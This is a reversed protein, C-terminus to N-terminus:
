KESKREEQEIGSLEPKFESDIHWENGPRDKVISIATEIATKAARYEKKQKLVKALAWYADALRFSKKDGRASLRKIGLFAAREAEDLNKNQAALVKANLVDLRGAIWDGDPQGVCYPKAMELYFKAKDFANGNYEAQALHHLALAAHGTNVYEGKPAKDMRKRVRQLVPEIRKFMLEGDYPMWYESCIEMCAAGIALKDIDASHKKEATTLAVNFREMIEKIPFQDTRANLGRVLQVTYPASEISDTKEDKPAKTDFRALENQWHKVRSHDGTKGYLDILKDISSVVINSNVKKQAQELQVYSEMLALADQPKNTQQLAEFLLNTTDKLAKERGDRIITREALLLRRAEKLPALADLPQPPELKMYLEGLEENLKAKVWKPSDLLNALALGHRYKKQADNPQENSEQCGGAYYYLLPASWSAAAMSQRDKKASLEINDLIESVPKGFLELLKRQGNETHYYLQDFLVVAVACRDIPSLQKSEPGNLLSLLVESSYDDMHRRQSYVGLMARAAPASNLSTALGQLSGGPLLMPFSLISVLVALSVMIPVIANPLKTSGFKVPKDFCMLEFARELDGRLEEMSQYRNEPEKILCKMVINRLEVPIDEGDLRAPPPPYSELQKNMITMINAGKFAQKGSLAEYMVCGLAYIDSRQDVQHGHCQEPSMYAPSGFVEGTRTLMQFEGGLDEIKAVGFDVIKTIEGGRPDPNVLINSPKLDRHVVGNIHAYSLADTAEIFVAFFKGLPLAGQEKVIEQLSKGALFEMVLYPQGLGTIGCDYVAVLNPHSLAACARSEQEFRAMANSDNLLETRLVKVAIQKHLVVHEARYVTGMGGVGIKELIRYRGEIEGESLSQRLQMALAEDMDVRVTACQCQAIAKGCSNCRDNDARQDQTM